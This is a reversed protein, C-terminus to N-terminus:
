SVLPKNPTALPFREKKFFGTFGTLVLPSSNAQRSATWCCKGSGTGQVVALGGLILFGDVDGFFGKTFVKEDKM